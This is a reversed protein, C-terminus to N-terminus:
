RDNWGSRSRRKPQLFRLAGRAKAISLLHAGDTLTGSRLRMPWLSGVVFALSQLGTAICVGLLGGPKLLGYGVAWLIITLALNAAPGAATIITDSMSTLYRTNTEEYTVHGGVDSGMANRAISWRGKRRVFPGVKFEIIRMGFRKAALEHGLEHVYICLLPVLSFFLIVAFVGATQVVITVAIWGFLWAVGAGIWANAIELKTRSRM